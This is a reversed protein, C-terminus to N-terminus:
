ISFGTRILLMISEVLSFDAHLSNAPQRPSTLYMRWVIIIPNVISELTDELAIVSFTLQLWESICLSLPM